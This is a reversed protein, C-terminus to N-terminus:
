GWLGVRLGEYIKEFWLYAARRRDHLVTVKELGHLWLWWYGLGRSGWYWLFEERVSHGVRGMQGRGMVRVEMRAQSIM